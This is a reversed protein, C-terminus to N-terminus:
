RQAPGSTLLSSSEHSLFNIGMAGANTHDLIPGGAPVGVLLIKGLVKNFIMGQASHELLLEKGGTDGVNIDLTSGVLYSNVDEGGLGTDHDALSLVDGKQLVYRVTVHNGGVLIGLPDKKLETVQAGSLRLVRHLYSKVTMGQENETMRYEM